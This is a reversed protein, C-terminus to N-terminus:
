NGYNGDEKFYELLREMLDAKQERLLKYIREEITGAGILHINKVLNKQGNRFLRRVSQFYQEYSLPLSYWIMVSGGYQINNGFGISAPHAIATKILGDNWRKQQIPTELTEAGLENLLFEKEFDFQYFILVNQNALEELLEKLAEQKIDHIFHKESLEDYIYGSCIQRLKGFRTSPSVSMIHVNDIEIVGDKQMKIYLDDKRYGSYRVIDIKEPLELYDKSDMSFCIDKIKEKIVDEAGPLFKRYIVTNNIHEPIMYKTRFETITPFLRKGRDLIFIQSWLGELNESAPTASLLVIKRFDDIWKTKRKGKLCLSKWRKTSRNKFSTSEDLVLMDCSKMKETSLWAFNDRSVLYIDAEVNAARRRQEATGSIVSIRLDKTSDWKESEQKWVNNVVSKPGVILVRGIRGAKQLRAVATLVCITKGLGCDMWCGLRDREMIMGIAKKQYGYLNSENLM